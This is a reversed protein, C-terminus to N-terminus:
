KGYATLNKWITNELVSLFSFNGFFLVTNRKTETGTTAM